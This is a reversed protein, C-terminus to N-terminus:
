NRQLSIMYLIFDATLLYM